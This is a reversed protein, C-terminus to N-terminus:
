SSSPGQNQEELWKEAEDRSRFVKTKWPTNESFTEWMRNLGFTLTSPAVLAMVLRPVLRSLMEDQAALNRIDGSSLRVDTVATFDNLCTQIRAIANSNANLSEHLANGDSVTMVGSWRIDIRSGDDSIAYTVPM